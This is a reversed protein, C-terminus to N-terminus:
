FSLRKSGNQMAANHMMLTGVLFIIYSLQIEREREIYIDVYVLNKLDDGRKPGNKHGKMAKIFGEM